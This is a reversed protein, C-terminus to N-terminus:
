NQNQTSLNLTIEQGTLAFHLNQLQHVFMYPLSSWSRNVSLGMTFSGESVQHACLITQEFLSLTYDNGTIIFGFQNLWEETLPIPELTALMHDSDTIHRLKAKNLIIQQGKFLIVNNLSLERSSIM